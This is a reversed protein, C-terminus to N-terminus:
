GAAAHHKLKMRPERKAGHALRSGGYMVFYWAASPLYASQTLGILLQLPRKSCLGELGAVEQAAELRIFM